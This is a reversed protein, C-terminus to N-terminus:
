YCIVIICIRDWVNSEKRPDAYENKVVFCLGMYFRRSGVHIKINFGCIFLNQTFHEVSSVVNGQIVVQEVESSYRVPKMYIWLDM